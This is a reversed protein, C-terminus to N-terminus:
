FLLPCSLNPTLTLLCTVLPTSSVHLLRPRATSHRVRSRSLGPEFGRCIIAGNIAVRQPSLLVFDKYNYKAIFQSKCKKKILLNYCVPSPFVTCLYPRCRCFPQSKYFLMTVTKTYNDCYTSDSIICCSKYRHIMQILDCSSPALCVCQLRQWVM